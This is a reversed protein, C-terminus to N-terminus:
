AALATVIFVSPLIFAIGGLWAGLQGARAFCIFICVQIALPGPLIQSAAVAEHMEERSAWGRQKILDREMIGCLAVPGGAGILGLRLFYGIIQWLDRASRIEAAM